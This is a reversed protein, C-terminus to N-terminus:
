RSPTLARPNRADIAKVAHALVATTDGLRTDGAAGAVARGGAASESPSPM